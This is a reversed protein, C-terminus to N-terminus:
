EPKVVFRAKMQVSPKIIYYIDSKAFTSDIKMGNVLNNLTQKLTDSYSEGMGLEELKPINKILEEETYASDPHNRLFELILPSPDKALEFSKKDLPM